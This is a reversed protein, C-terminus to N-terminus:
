PTITEKEWHRSRIRRQWCWNRDISVSVKSVSNSLSLCGLHQIIRLHTPKSSILSSLVTKGMRNNRYSEIMMPRHQAKRLQVAQIPQLYLALCPNTRPKTTWDGLRAWNKMVGHGTAWWAGGEMPNGLCLHQLPNGNGGGPFRGSGPIWGMYGADYGANTPPNKVVLWWPFQIPSALSM